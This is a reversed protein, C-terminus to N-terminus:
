AWSDKSIKEKNIRKLSQGEDAKLKWIGEWYVYDIVKNNHKLLVLGNSNRLSFSPKILISKNPKLFSHLRSNSKNNSISYYNLNISKNGKNEIVIFEKGKDSGKADYMVEKLIIDSSSKPLSGNYYYLQSFEKFFREATKKDKIIVINEDNRENGNKTPNMSGTIVTENDIIFAKHHMTYPNKDLVAFGKLDDYRSFRGAKKKEVVGKIDLGLYNKNWLLNGIDKDTFSYAMFYISKNAQKLANIIRLKCNDEPCFYNEIKKNGLYIVPTKVKRGRGYIGKKLENFEDLYNEALARSEIIVINNNNYYNGRITPNMSGTMVKKKDFVCFKNHMLAESYSANFGSNYKKDYRSDEVIVEAHKKNLADIVEPLKIDYFACKIEKSSNILSIIKEQCMDEPCFYANLSTYPERVVNATITCSALFLLM